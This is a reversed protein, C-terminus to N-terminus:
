SIVKPHIKERGVRKTATLSAPLLIESRGITAMDGAIKQIFLPLPKPALDGLVDKLYRAM